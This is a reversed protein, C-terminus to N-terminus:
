LKKMESTLNTTFEYNPAYLMNLPLLKSTNIERRTLIEVNYYLLM